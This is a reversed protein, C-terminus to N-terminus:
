DKWSVGALVRHITNRHVRLSRAIAVVTEGDAWRRRVEEAKDHGLKHHGGKANRSHLLRLIAMRPYGYVEALVDSPVGADLHQLLDLREQGTIYHTNTMSFNDRVRMTLAVLAANM